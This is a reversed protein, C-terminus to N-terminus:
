TLSDCSWASLAGAVSLKVSVSVSLWPQMAVVAITTVARGWSKATVLVVLPVVGAETDVEVDEQGVSVTVEDGDLAVTEDPCDADKLADAVPEGAGVTCHCTLVSPPAVNVSRGPAVDVVSVNGTLMACVPM